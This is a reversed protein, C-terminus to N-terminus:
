PQITDTAEPDNAKDQLLMQGLLMLGSGLQDVLGEGTTQDRAADVKVLDTHRQVGIAAITMLNRKGTIDPEDLQTENWTNDKGGFQGIVTPLHMDLLAQRAELILLAAVEGRMAALDIQRAAVAAATDTRDFSLDLQKAAKTVSAGSIELQRAIENRGLGISHLHRISARTEDTVPRPRRAADMPEPDNNDTQDAKKTM